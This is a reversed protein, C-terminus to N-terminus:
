GEHDIEKSKSGLWLPSFWGALLLWWLSRNKRKLVWISMPLMIIFTILYAVVDITEEYGYPDITGSIFGVIFSLMLVVVYGLIYTWNLHSQFWNLEKTKAREGVKDGGFDSM